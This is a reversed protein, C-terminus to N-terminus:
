KKKSKDVTNRISRNFEFLALAILSTTVLRFAIKIADENSIEFYIALIRFIEAFLFIVFSIFFLKWTKFLKDGLRHLSDATYYLAVIGVIFSIIELYIDIQEFSM